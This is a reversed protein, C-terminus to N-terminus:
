KIPDRMFYFRLDSTLMPSLFGHFSSIAHIWFLFPQVAQCSVRLVCPLWLANILYFIVAVDQFSLYLDWEATFSVYVYVYSILLVFLDGEPYITPYKM